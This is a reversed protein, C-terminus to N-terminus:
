TGTHHDRGMKEKNERAELCAERLEELIEIKEIKRKYAQFAALLLMAADMMKRMERTMTKEEQEYAKELDRCSMELAEGEMIAKDIAKM